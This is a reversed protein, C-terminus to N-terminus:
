PKTITVYYTALSNFDEIKIDNSVSANKNSADILRLTCTSKGQCASQSPVFTSPQAAQPLTITYGTEVFLIKYQKNGKLELVSDALQIYITKDAGNTKPGILQYPFKIASTTTVAPPPPAPTNAPQSAVASATIAPATTTAVTTNASAPSTNSETAVTTNASAPSTNSETANKSAPTPTILAPPITGAARATQNAFVTSIVNNANARDTPNPPPNAGIISLATAAAVEENKVATIESKATANAAITEERVRVATMESASLAAISANPTATVAAALPTQTPNNNNPLLVVAAIIGAAILLAVLVGVLLLGSSRNQKKFSDDTERIIDSVWYNTAWNTVAFSAVETPAGKYSAQVRPPQNPYQGYCELNLVLGPTRSSHVVFAWSGEDYKDSEWEKIQREVKAAELREEEAQVRALGNPQTYWAPERKEVQVNGANGPRREAQQLEPELRALEEGALIRPQLHGFNGMQDDLYYFNVAVRGNRVVTIPNILRAPYGPDALLRRATYLDGGSPYHLAPPHKHWEGIYDVGPYQGVWRDLEANAFDVDIAFTFKQHDAQPGAETAAVVLVTAADLWKGIMIGGTEQDETAYRLTEQRMADFAAQTVLVTIGAVPPPEDRGTVVTDFNEAMQRQAM